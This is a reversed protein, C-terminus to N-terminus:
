KEIGMRSYMGSRSLRVRQVSEKCTQNQAFPMARFGSLDSAIKSALSGVAVGIEGCDVNGTTLDRQSVM